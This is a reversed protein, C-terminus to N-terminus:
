GRCVGWLPVDQPHEPLSLGPHQGWIASTYTLPIVEPLGSEQIKGMCPFASFEKVQSTWNEKLLLLRKINLCGPRQQLFEEREQSRWSGAAAGGLTLSGGAHLMTGADAQIKRGQRSTM